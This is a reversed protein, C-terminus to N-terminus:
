RKLTLVNTLAYGDVVRTLTAALIVGKQLERKSTIGVQPSGPAVPVRVINETRPPLRVQGAKIGQKRLKEAKNVMEYKEGYLIVTRTEYCIKARARQLFDCGLIGDCPIDVQKSILQFSYTVSKSGLRIKAEIAGHTEIPSGDVCKVKIREDPNFEATGALKNGKLLSIDAGTDVLFLLEKEERSIDVKLKLFQLKEKGM